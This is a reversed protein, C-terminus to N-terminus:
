PLQRDAGSAEASVGEGGAWPYGLRVRTAVVLVLATLGFAVLPGVENTGAAPFLAGTLLQSWNIATHLLIAQLLSGRTHNFVWTIIVSLSILLLV